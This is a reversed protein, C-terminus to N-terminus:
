INKLGKAAPSATSLGLAKLPNSCVCKMKLSDVKLTATKPSPRAQCVGHGNCGRVVKQFRKNEVGSGLGAVSFNLTSGKIETAGDKVTPGGEGPTCGVSPDPGTRAPGSLLWADGTVSSPNVVLVDLVSRPLLSSGVVSIASGLGVSGAVSGKCCVASGSTSTGVVM